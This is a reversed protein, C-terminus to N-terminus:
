RRADESKGVRYKKSIERSNELDEVKDGASPPLKTQGKGRVIVNHAHKIGSKKFFINDTPKIKKFIM